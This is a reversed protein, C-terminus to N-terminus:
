IGKKKEVWLVADQLMDSLTTLHTMDVELPKTVLRQELDINDVVSKIHKITALGFQCGINTDVFPITIQIYSDHLLLTDVYTDIEKYPIPILEVDASISYNNTLFNHYLWVTKGILMDKDTVNYYTVIADFESLSSIHQYNWMTKNNNTIDCLILAVYYRNIAISKIEMLKKDINVEEVNKNKNPSTNHSLKYTNNVIDHLLSVELGVLDSIYMLNYYNLLDNLEGLSCKYVINESNEIKRLDFIAGYQTVNSVDTIKAPEISIM